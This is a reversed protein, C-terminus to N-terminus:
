RRGCACHASTSHRLSVAAVLLRTFCAFCSVFWFRLLTNVGHMVERWCPTPARDKCDTVCHLQVIGPAIRAHWIALCAVGAAASCPPHTVASITVQRHRMRSRVDDARAHSYHSRGCTLPGAVSPPCVSPPRPPLFRPIYWAYM